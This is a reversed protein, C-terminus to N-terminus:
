AADGLRALAIAGDAADSAPEVLAACAQEPLHSALPAALGGVLAVRDVGLELLRMVLAGIEAAAEDRLRAAEADAAAHEFALPALRGYDAPSARGCWSVAAEQDGGLALLASESLTGRPAMGDAAKLAHRVIARGLAAGGGDDSAEFGWGGFRWERGRLRGYAVSGTGAIVVGGDRGEHAGLCATTFDTTLRLSRFPHPEAAMAAMDAPQCVGALGAGAHLSGLATMPLGAIALAARSAAVIAGMTARAGRRANASGAEGEGLLSGADDRIRARCRTGGGDVGLYLRAETM